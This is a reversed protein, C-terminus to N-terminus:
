FVSAVGLLITYKACMILHLCYLLYGYVYFHHAPCVKHGVYRRWIQPTPRILGSVSYVNEAWNRSAAFTERARKREGGGWGFVVASRAHKLALFRQSTVVWVSSQYHWDVLSLHVQVLIGIELLYHYLLAIRLIIGNNIRTRSTCWVMMCLLWRYPLKSFVVHTKYFPEGPFQQFIILIKCM